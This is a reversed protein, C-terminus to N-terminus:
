FLLPPIFSKRSPCHSNPFITGATVSFHYGCSECPFQNRKYMRSIKPSQSRVCRVGDPWRLEELHMRCKEDNDFRNILKLLNMESKFNVARPMPSEKHLFFSPFWCNLHRRVLCHFVEKM